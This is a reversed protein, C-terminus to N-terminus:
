PHSDPNGDALVHGVNAGHGLLQDFVGSKWRPRIDSLVLRMGTLLGIIMGGLMTRTVQGGVGGNVPPPGLSRLSRPGVDPPVAQEAYTHCTARRVLGGKLVAERVARQVVSEHLHHRRRQGTAQDVYFRRAPFVWQWGWEPGANPYKRGLAWPLEVWGAGRALDRAHQQRM